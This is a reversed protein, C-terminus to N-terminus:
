NETVMQFCRYFHVLVAKAMYILCMVVPKPNKTPTEINRNFRNRNEYIHKPFLRRFVYLFVSVCVFLDWVQLLTNLKCPL